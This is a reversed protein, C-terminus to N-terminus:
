GSCSPGQRRRRISFYCGGDVVFFLFRFVAFLNVFCFVKDFPVECYLSANMASCTEKRNNMWIRSRQWGTSNDPRLLGLVLSAGFNQGSSGNQNNIYDSPSCFLAEIIDKVHDFLCNDENRTRHFTPSSCGCSWIECGFKWNIIIFNELAGM